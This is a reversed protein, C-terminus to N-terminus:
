NLAANSHLPRLANKNKGFLMSLLDSQLNYRTLIFNQGPYLPLNENSKSHNLLVNPPYNLSRQLYLKTFEANLEAGLQDIGLNDM